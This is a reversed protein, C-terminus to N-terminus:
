IHILSLYITHLQHSGLVYTSLTNPANSVTPPEVGLGVGALEFVTALQGVAVQTYALLLRFIQWFLTFVLLPLM